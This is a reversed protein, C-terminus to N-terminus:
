SVPRSTWLAPRSGLLQLHRFVSMASAVAPSGPLPTGVTGPLSLDLALYLQMGQVNPACLSQWRKDPESLTRLVGPTGDLIVQQTQGPVSSCADAIPAPAAAIDLASPDDAPGLTLSTGLARSGSMAFTTSTVHWGTPVGTLRFAFVPRATDGYRVQTAVRLLDTRTVASGARPLGSETLQAWGGPAYEWAVGGGRGDAIWFAPRGRVAPAAGTLARGGGIEGDCVLRHQSGAARTVQLGTLRCSGAAYVTLSLMLKGPVQSGSATSAHLSVSDGTAQGSYGGVAGGASFEPPLWGFLAYPLLPNFGGPARAPRSPAQVPGGSGHPRGLHFPIVALAIVAMVALAAACCAGARRRRLRRRGIQCAVGIDVASPPAEDRALLELLTRAGEEDMTM